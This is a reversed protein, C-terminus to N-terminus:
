RCAEVVKSLAATVASLYLERLARDKDAVIATASDANCVRRNRHLQAMFVNKRMPSIGGAKECESVCGGLGVAM